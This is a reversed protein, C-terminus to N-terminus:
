ESAKLWAIFDKMVATTESVNVEWAYDKAAAEISETLSPAAPAPTESPWDRSTAPMMTVVPQAPTEIVRVNRQRQEEILLADEIAEKGSKREDAFVYNNAYYRTRGDQFRSKLRGRKVARQLYAYCGGHTAYGAANIVEPVTAGPNHEIFKLAQRAHEGKAAELMEERTRGRGQATEM